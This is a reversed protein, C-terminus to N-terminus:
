LEGGPLPTKSAAPPLVGRIGLRPPAAAPPAVPPAAPPAAPLPPPIAAATVTGTTPAFFRDFAMIWAMPAVTVDSQIKGGPAAKLEWADLEFPNRNHSITYVFSLTNSWSAVFGMRIPVANGIWEGNVVPQPPPTGTPQLVGPQGPYSGPPMVQGGSAPPWVTGPAAVVEMGGGPHPATPWGGPYTPAPYTPAPYTAGPYTAGPYMAGGPVPWGPNMMGPIAPSPMFFHDYHTEPVLILKKNEDATMDIKRMPPLVVKNIEEVGGDDALKILKLLDQLQKIAHFLEEPDDSVKIELLAYLDDISSIPFRATGSKEDKGKQAWILRAHAFKKILPVLDGYRFALSYPNFPDFLDANVGLTRLYTNYEMRATQRELPNSLVRLTLANNRLKDVLDWLPIGTPLQSPVDWGPNDPQNPRWDLFTLRMKPYKNRLDCVEYILELLRDQQKKVGAKSNDFFIPEWHVNLDRALGDVFDEVSQTEKVFKRIAPEQQASVMTTWRGRQEVYSNYADRYAQARNMFVFWHVAGIAVLCLIVMGGLKERNGIQVPM